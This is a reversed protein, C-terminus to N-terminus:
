NDASRHTASQWQVHGDGYAVNGGNGRHDALNERVIIDNSNTSCAILYSAESPNPASPCHFVKDSSIYKRLDDLTRPCKDNHEATYMAIAQAIQKENSQCVVRRAKERAQALAPLLMAALILVPILTLGVGGLVIGTIAKGQGKVSGGSKNIQNLAVIGLILALIAGIIPLLCTIGLIGLVLSAIALGSTRPTPTANPAFPPAQKNV